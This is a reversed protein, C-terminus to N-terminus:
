LLITLVRLDEYEIYIIKELYPAFSVAEGKEILRQVAQRYVEESAFKLTIYHKGLNKTKQFLERVQEKDYAELYQGERVYYNNQVAVCEPISIYADLTHTQELEKTTVCLYAYNIFTEEELVENTYSPDGWTADLLYPEGDIFVMNWAHSEGGAYGTLTVCQVGLKELLYQVGKAYGMCVSEKKLFTSIINQSESIDMCYNTNKIIYEYVSCVKEYEDADQDIGELFPATAEEIQKIIREQKEQKMTYIPTISIGAVSDGISITKMNYGNIWFIESYDLMMSRYASEIVSEKLTDVVVDEKFNMVADVMQDYVLKTEEDLGEYFYRGNSVRQLHETEPGVMSLYNKSIMRIFDLNCISQYVPRGLLFVLVLVCCLWVIRKIIKKM